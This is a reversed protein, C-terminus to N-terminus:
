PEYTIQFGRLKVDQNAAGTVSALLYFLHTDGTFAPSGPIPTAQAGPGSFGPLILLRTLDFPPARLERILETTMTGTGPLEGLVKLSRLKVGNPLSLPLVGWANDNATPKEVYTGQPQGAFVRSWVISSWPSTTPLRYPELVPILGVTVPAAVAQGLSGIATDIQQVVGSVLEFEAELAHFRENFGNDGGAQVRDVNDVWERHTFVRKYTIPM